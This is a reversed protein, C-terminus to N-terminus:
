SVTKGTRGRYWGRVFALETSFEYRTIGLDIAIDRSGRRSVFRHAAIKQQVPSLHEANDMVASMFPSFLRKFLLRARRSVSGADSGVLTAVRRITLTDIYIMELLLRDPTPLLAARARLSSKLQEHRDAMLTSDRGQSDDTWRQIRTPKLTVM